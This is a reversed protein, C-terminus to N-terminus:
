LEFCFCNLRVLPMIIDGVESRASASLSTWYHHEMSLQLRRILALIQGAMKVMITFLAYLFFSFFCNVFLCM